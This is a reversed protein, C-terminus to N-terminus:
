IPTTTKKGEPEPKKGALVAQLIEISPLQHRNSGIGNENESNTSQSARFPRLWNLRWQEDEM